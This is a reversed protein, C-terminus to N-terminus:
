NTLNEFFHNEYCWYDSLDTAIGKLVVRFYWMTVEQAVQGVDEETWSQNVIKEQYEENDYYSQQIDDRLLVRYNVDKELDFVSPIASIPLNREILNAILDKSRVEVENWFQEEREEATLKKTKPLKKVEEKKPKFVVLKKTKKVM